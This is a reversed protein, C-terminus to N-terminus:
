QMTVRGGNRKRSLTSATMTTGARGEKGCMPRDSDILDPRYRPHTSAIGVADATADLYARGWLQDPEPHNGEAWDNWANLFVIAVLLGV